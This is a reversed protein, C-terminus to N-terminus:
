PVPIHFFGQHSSNPFCRSTQSAPPCQKQSALGGARGEQSQSIRKDEAAQKLCDTAVTKDLDGSHATHCRATSASRRRPPTGMPSAATQTGHGGGEESPAAERQGESSGYGDGREAGTGTTGVKESSKTSERFVLKQRGRSEGPVHIGRHGRPGLVGQAWRRERFETEKGRM